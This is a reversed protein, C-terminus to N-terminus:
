CSTLVLDSSLDLRSIRSYEKLVSRIKLMVGWSDRPDQTEQINPVATKSEQFSVGADRMNRWSRSIAWIHNNVEEDDTKADLRQLQM